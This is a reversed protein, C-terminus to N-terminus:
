IFNRFFSIYRFLFQLEYTSKVSPTTSIFSGGFAGLLSFVGTSASSKLGKKVSEVSTEGYFLSSITSAGCSVVMKTLSIGKSFGKTGLAGMIGGAITQTYLAGLNVDKNMIQTMSTNVYSGAAGGAIGSLMLSSSTLAAGGLGGVIGGLLTTGIYEGLTVSGNFIQGDDVYDTAASVGFGIVAGVIAGIVLASIAFNGEEDIMNIPDNGCYAYLNLGIISSSDLYDISDPTIFRLLVPNYFRSKLYYLEIDTDYYYGKYRFNSIVTGTQNIINGFADYDFKSVIVGSNNLIGIINGLVDRIYFYITNNKKYGYLQNNEDYFYDIINNGCVEKVLKRNDYYYNTTTTSVPLDGEEITVRKKIILGELDYTYSITKNNKTVTVLRKGQYFYTYGNFTEM